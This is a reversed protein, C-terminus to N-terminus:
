RHTVSRLHALYASPWMFETWGTSAVGDIECAMAGEVLVTSPSSAFEFHGFYEGQLVTTRQATDTVEARISRQRHRDDPQWETRVSEVEAMVGDRYVYGRLERRGAMEIDWFHVAVDRNQAHLWKWHQAFDWDRTGWSHDRAGTTDVEFRKGDIEVFGKIRGSQEIRNTALAAPCGRRHASYAYAPHIGEFELSMRARESRAEVRAHKLDLGHSISVPGVSWRDFNQEAPVAIDDVKEVSPADGVAPGFVGFLSGARSDKNVWTYIAAAIGQEPLSVIYPMSERELPGDRLPHRGDHVPDLAAIPPPNKM